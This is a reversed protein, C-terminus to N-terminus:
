EEIDVPANEGSYTPDHEALKAEIHTLQEEERENESDGEDGGLVRYVDWESDKKGFTDENRKSRRGPQ